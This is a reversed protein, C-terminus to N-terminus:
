LVRAVAKLTIVRKTRLPYATFYQIVPALFKFFFIALRWINPLGSRENVTGNGFLDRIAVLVSYEQSQDLLFQIRSIFGTRPAARPSVTVNFSGEAGTFGSM